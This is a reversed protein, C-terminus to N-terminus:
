HFWCSTFAGLSKYCCSTNISRPKFPWSSHSTNQHVCLIPSCSELQPLLFFLLVASLISVWCSSLQFFSCGSRKSSLDELRTSTGKKSLWLVQCGPFPMWWHWCGPAFNYPLSHDPLAAIFNVGLFIIDDYEPSGCITTGIPCPVVRTPVMRM